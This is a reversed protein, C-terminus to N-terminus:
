PASVNKGQKRGFLFYVIFGIFPISAVLMWAAKKPLSDFEKQAANIVAWFTLIFFPACFILVATVTHLDM